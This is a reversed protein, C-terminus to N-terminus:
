IWAMPGDGTQEIRTEEISSASELRCDHADDEWQAFPLPKADASSSEAHLQQEFQPAADEVARVVSLQTRSHESSEPTEPEIDAFYAVEGPSRSSATPSSSSTVPSGICFRASGTKNDWIIRSSVTALSRPSIPGEEVADFPVPARRSIGRMLGAISGRKGTRGGRRESESESGGDDSSQGDRRAGALFAAADFKLSFRRGGSASKKLQLGSPSPPKDIDIAVEGTVTAASSPAEGVAEFPARHQFGDGYIPVATRSHWQAIAAALRDDGALGADSARRRISSALRADETQPTDPESVRRHNGPAPEGLYRGIHVASTATPTGFISKRRDSSRIEAMSARRISSALRTHAPAPFAPASPSDPNWYLPDQGARLEALQRRWKEVSSAVATDDLVGKDTARQRIESAAQAEPSIPSSPAAVNGDVDAAIASGAPMSPSATRDVVPDIDWESTSRTRQGLMMRRVAPRSAVITLSDRLEALTDAAQAISSRRASSKKKPVVLIGDASDMGSSRVTTASAHKSLIRQDDLSPSPLMSPLREEKRSMADEAKSEDCLAGLNRARSLRYGLLGLSTAFSVMTFLAASSEIKLYSWNPQRTLLLRLYAMNLCAM